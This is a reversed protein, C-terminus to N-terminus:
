NIDMGHGNEEWKVNGSEVVEKFFEYVLRPKNVWVLHGANDSKLVHINKWNKYAGQGRVEWKKDEIEKGTEVGFTDKCINYFETILGAGDYEGLTFGIKLGSNLMSKWGASNDRKGLWLLDSLIVGINFGGSYSNM